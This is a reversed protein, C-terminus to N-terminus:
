GFFSQAATEPNTRGYHFSRGTDLNHIVVEAPSFLHPDIKYFDGNYRRFTEAFPTGYDRSASSPVRPGVAAISADDGRCWLVVRSAYLIADNTRGVAVLDDAAPPPVPASGFGSAVRRVDFGLELLKHLTTEVSRATIQMTGAIGATPAAALMVASPAVGTREAIYKVVDDDPLRRGELVGVAATAKERFGIKDFLPEKGYAARMPGSGMAFFKGVSLAWGAYQSAM